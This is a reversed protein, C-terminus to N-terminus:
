LSALVTYTFDSCDQSTHATHDGYGCMIERPPTQCRLPNLFVPSHQRHPQMREKDVVFYPSHLSWYLGFNRRHVNSHVNSHTRGWECSQLFWPGQKEEYVARFSIISPFFHLMFYFIGNMWENWLEKRRSLLPEWLILGAGATNSDTERM